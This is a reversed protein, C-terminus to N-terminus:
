LYKQNLHVKINVLYLILIHWLCLKRNYKIPTKLLKEIWATENPKTSYQLHNYQARRKEEEQRESIHYAHFTGIQYAIPIRKEDWEQIIKVKSDEETSGKSLCKSNVSGPVRLLCSKLSPHNKKDAYGNSLFDKEFQLFKNDIKEFDKFEKIASLTTPVKFPQYIHFGNGTWLVTPHGGLRKKINTLTTFLKKEIPIKSNDNRDLDIFVLNPVPNEILPFPNIRCDVFGSKKYEEYLRDFDYITVQRGETM